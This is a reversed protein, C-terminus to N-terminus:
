AKADDDDHEKRYTGTYGGDDDEEYHVALWASIGQQRADYACDASGYWYFGDSPVQYEGCRNGDMWSWAGKLRTKQEHSLEKRVNRLILRCFGHDSM